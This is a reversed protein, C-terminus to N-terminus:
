HTYLDRQTWVKSQSHICITIYLVYVRMYIYLYITKTGTQPFMVCMEERISNQARVHAGACGTCVTLENQTEILWVECM